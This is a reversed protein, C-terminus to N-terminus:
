RGQAATRKRCVVLPNNASTFQDRLGWSGFEDFSKEVAYLRRFEESTGELGTTIFYEPLLRPDQGKLPEKFYVLEYRSFPIPPFRDVMPAPTGMGLAAGAPLNEEIWRGAQFSNSRGPSDAIFNADYLAAAANGALVLGLLVRSWRGRAAAWQSGLIAFLGMAPLFFRSINPADSQSSMQFATAALLPLALLLLLRDSGSRKIFAAALAALGLLWPGLGLGLRLPYVVLNWLARPDLSPSYWRAMGRSEDLTEQLSVLVFPNTAFYVAVGLLYFGALRALQRPKWWDPRLQSFAVAIPLALLWHYKACGVALGFLVNAGILDAPKRSSVARVCFYLCGLAFFSAPLHTKMVHAFAVVAPGTGFFLSSWLGVREDYLEKGILFVFVVCGLSALVSVLRGAKYLKGLEDPNRYYYLSDSVLHLYGVVHLAGFFGALPYIYAGGNMTFHPNFEGKWPKLRSLVNLTAQEDQEVSRMMFSSYGHMLIADPAAGAPYRVLEFGTTPPLLTGSWTGRGWSAQMNLGIKERYAQRNTEVARYFADARQEPTFVREARAKSPLGWGLGLLYLAACLALGSVLAGLGARPAKM